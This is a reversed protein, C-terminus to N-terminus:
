EIGIENETKRGNVPKETKTHPETQTYVSICVWFKILIVFSNFALYFCDTTQTHMCILRSDWAEKSLPEIYVFPM